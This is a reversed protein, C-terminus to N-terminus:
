AIIPQWFTNIAESILKDATDDDVDEIYGDEDFDGQVARALILATYVEHKWGSNGFPRKGDFGEEEIWLNQLLTGLYERITSANADNDPMPLDLLDNIPYKIIL